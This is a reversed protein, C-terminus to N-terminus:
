KRGHANDGDVNNQAQLSKNQVKQNGLKGGNLGGGGHNGGQQQGQMSHPDVKGTASPKHSKREKKM